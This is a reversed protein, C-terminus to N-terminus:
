ASSYIYQATVIQLRGIWVECNGGFGHVLVAVPRGDSAADNSMEAEIFRCQHEQFTFYKETVNWSYKGTLSSSNASATIIRTYHKRRSTGRCSERKRITYQHHCLAADNQRNCNIRTAATAAMTPEPKKPQPLMATPM